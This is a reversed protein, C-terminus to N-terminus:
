ATVLKAFIEEQSTVNPDSSWELKEKDIEVFGKDCVLVSNEYRYCSEPLTDTNFDTVILEAREKQTDNLEKHVAKKIDEAVEQDGDVKSNFYILVQLDGNVTLLKIDGVIKTIHEKFDYKGNKFPNIERPVSLVYHEGTNGSPYTYKRYKNGLKGLEELQWKTRETKWSGTTCLPTIVQHGFDIAAKLSSAFPINKSDTYQVFVPDYGEVKTIKLKVNQESADKYFDFLDGYAIAGKMNTVASVACGECGIPCSNMQREHFISSSYFDKKNSEDILDILALQKTNDL